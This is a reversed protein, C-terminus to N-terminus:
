RAGARADAGVEDLVALVLELHRAVVDRGRLVCGFDPAITEVDLAAFVEAVQDRIIRAKAEAVWDFKALIHDRVQEYTVTDSSADVIWPDDPHELLTHGFADSTLLTRSAPDYVWVSPLLRLPAACVELPLGGGVPIQMGREIQTWAPQASPPRDEPLVAGIGQRFYVWSEADWVSILRQAPFRTLVLGANGVCDFEPPRRLVLTLPRVAPHLAGLQGLIADQLVPLGTDVLVDGAADTVLHCVHPAFGRASRAFWSIRGDVPVVGGLAHLRGPALELAQAAQISTM